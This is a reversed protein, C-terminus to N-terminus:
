GTSSLGLHPSLTGRLIEYVRLRKTLISLYLENKQDQHKVDGGSVGTFNSSISAPDRNNPVVSSGFHGPPFSAQTGYMEFVARSTTSGTYSGRIVVQCGRVVQGGSTLVLPAPFRESFM